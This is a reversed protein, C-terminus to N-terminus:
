NPRNVPITPKRMTMRKIEDVSPINGDDDRLRGQQRYDAVAVAMNTVTSLAADKDRKGIAKEFLKYQKEYELADQKMIKAYNNNMSLGQGDLSSQYLQLPLIANEAVKAFARVTEWDDNLIADPVQSLENTVKQIRPLYRKKATPYYYALYVVSVSLFLKYSIQNNRYGWSGDRSELCFDPDAHV